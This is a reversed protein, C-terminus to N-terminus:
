DAVLLSAVAALVRAFAAAQLEGAVSQVLSGHATFLKAPRAFSTLRLGGSAFDADDIQVAREDVYAKSTIQCMVWDGRGANALVLAPRLKQASLDSFPFPLLVVQRRVLAQGTM